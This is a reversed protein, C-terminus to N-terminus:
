LIRPALFVLLEAREDRDSRFQFLKGIFPLNGLFPVKNETEAIDQTFVGGIVV